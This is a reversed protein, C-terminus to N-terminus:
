VVEKEETEISWEHNFNTMDLDKLFERFLSTVYARSEEFNSFLEVDSWGDKKSKIKVVYVKM